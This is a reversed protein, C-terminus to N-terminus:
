ASPAESAPPAPPVAPADSVGAGPAVESEAADFLWGTVEAGLILVFGSLYLWVLLGAVGGLAGYTAGYNGLANVYLAFLYTALLWGVAFLAAGPLIARWPPRTVTGVRYLTGAVVVLVPIALVWRVILLARWAPEIGLRVAADTGAVELGVFLVFLVVILASGGITLAIALPYARWFPRKRTVGYAREIAKLVANTGGTAVYLAAVAGFSLLGADSHEVIRRLEDGVLKAVEAPLAAGFTRLIEGSPDAVGIARALFAGLAALFIVFPFLALFFRYALEASLGGIDHQGLRRAFGAPTAVLRTIRDAAPRWRAAPDNYREAIRRWV